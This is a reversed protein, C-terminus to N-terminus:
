LTYNEGTISLSVVAAAVNATIRVRTQLAPLSIRSYGNLIPITAQLANNANYLEIRSFVTGGAGPQLDANVIIPGAFMRMVENDTVGIGIAFQSRHYMLSDNFSFNAKSTIVRASPVMPNPSSYVEIIAGTPTGTYSGSLRTTITATSATSVTVRMQTALAACKIVTPGDDSRAWVGPYPNTHIVNGSPDLHEVTLAIFTLGAAIQPRVSFLVVSGNIVPLTEAPYTTFLLPDAAFPGLTKLHTLDPGTTPPSTWHGSM